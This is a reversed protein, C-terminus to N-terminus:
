LALLRREQGGFADTTVAAFRDVFLSGRGDEVVWTQTVTTRGFGSLRRVRGGVATSANPPDRNGNTKSTSGDGEEAPRDGALTPFRILGPRAVVVIGVVIEVIFGVVEIIEPPEALVTVVLGPDVVAGLAVPAVILGTVPIRAPDQVTRAEAARELGDWRAGPTSGCDVGTAIGTPWGRESVTITAM